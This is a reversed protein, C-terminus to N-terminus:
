LWWLIARNPLLSVLLLSYLMWFKFEFMLSLVEYCVSKGFGTPLWMFVDKGKYVSKISAKQESKLGMSPTSLQQLAHSNAQSFDSSDKLEM